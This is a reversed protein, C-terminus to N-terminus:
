VLDLGVDAARERAEDISVSGLNNGEVDILQVDRVRIEDNVRPGEKQPPPARFPRRM